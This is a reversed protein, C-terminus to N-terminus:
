GPYGEHQEWEQGNRGDKQYSHRDLVEPVGAAVCEVRHLRVVM